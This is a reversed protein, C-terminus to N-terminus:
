AARSLDTPRIWGQTNRVAHAPGDIPLRIFFTTGVGPETEFRLEGGHKDVVVNRAIPLGQGTGKGVEKTTFFPDFIRERIAEPIGGGTDGIAIEVSGGDVRTRITIRGREGDAVRDAIAHSANVIINLFAQNLEGGRCPVLPLDGLETTVDAVYKYENRAITLTTLLAHNIDVPRADKQDPHAFEKMSRVIDTIRSLGDIARELATPMSELLYPVDREDHAALLREGDAASATGDAVARALAEGQAVVAQLDAAADRAFHVSDNVFQVPTNIEHAVGSALRGVSELKQAQRLQLELEHTQTVDFMTGRMIGDETATGILRLWSHGGDDRRLRLNADVETPGNPGLSLLVLERDAPHLRTSLFGHALCADISVGILEPLQPGVYRLRQEHRDLEWPISRTTELLTRYQERSKQLERTRDDVKIEIRARSDEVEAQRQALAWMARRTQDIGLWLAADELLVWSGHEIFRWWEPSVAGYVSQPWLFGRAAHDAAVVITATMLVKWDRYFALLALSAFVHFHTEIRGGSLHIFITSWLVQGVAIAHRTHPRSAQYRVLLALPLVILAGGVAAVYVHAHTSAVSGSWTTPSVVLAVVIAAAWQVLALGLFLRDGKRFGDALAEHYLEKARPRIVDISTVPRVRPLSRNM